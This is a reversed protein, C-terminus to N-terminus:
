SFFLRIIDNFTIYVILILLLIFGISHCINEIKPNVPSGKIKEIILFLIRGGDFAPFPILNIFGVNISLLAILQLVSEIGASATQGVISYIGVPGSLNNMGVAGTFLLKFTIFMQKFLAGTKVFAYKIPAFFGKEEEYTFEIGFKYSTVGDKEEELPSIEYTVIEGSSKKMELEIPEGPTAVSFYVRVDDITSVSNGNIKVFEDGVEIGSTVMPYGSTLKTVVPDMNQSGFAIGCFLLILFALIFNNGAGFFMILFRQIFSKNYLKRDKAVKEDDDVEEGALRVFGGLPIARICYETEDKKNKRKKSFIKPGMGISFEYVHVGFMKAFIFHGFEHVLVIIGLILIFYILTM